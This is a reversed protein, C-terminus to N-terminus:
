CPSPTDTHRPCPRRQVPTLRLVPRLGARSAYIAASLGAPGGGLIVVDAPREVSTPPPTLPIGAALSAAEEGQRRELEARLADSSASALMAAVASTSGASAEAPPSAPPEVVVAAAKESTTPEEGYKRKLMRALKATMNAYKAAVSAADAVKSVDHAEYFSALDAATVVRNAYTGSREARKALDATTAQLRRVDAGQFSSHLSGGYYFHFTPMARVMCEASVDYAQNVNVKPTFKYPPM